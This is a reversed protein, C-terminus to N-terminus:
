AQFTLPPLEKYLTEKLLQIAEDAVPNDKFSPHRLASEAFSVQFIRLYDQLSLKQHHGLQLHFGNELVGRENNSKKTAGVYNFQRMFHRILYDQRYYMQCSQTIKDNFYSYRVPIKITHQRCCHVEVGKEGKLPQYSVIASLNIWSVNRRTPGSLPLYCHKGLIYPVCHTEKGSVLISANRVFDYSFGIVKFLAYMVKNSSERTKITRGDTFFILTRFHTRITEKELCLVYLITEDVIFNDMEMADDLYLQLCNRQHEIQFITAKKHGQPRGQGVEKLTQRLTELFIEVTACDAQGNAPFGREEDGSALLDRLGGQGIRDNQPWEEAMRNGGM